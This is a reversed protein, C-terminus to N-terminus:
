QKCDRNQGGKCDVDEDTQYQRLDVSELISYSSYSCGSIARLQLKSIMNMEMLIAITKQGPICPCSPDVSRQVFILIQSQRSPRSGTM